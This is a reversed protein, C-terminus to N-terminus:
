EEKKIKQFIEDMEEPTCKDKGNLHLHNYASHRVAAQIKRTIQMYSERTLSAPLEFHIEKVQQKNLVQDGLDDIDALVRKVRSENQYKQMWVKLFDPSIGHKECLTMDNSATLDDVRVRIQDIMEPKFTGQEKQNLIIDYYFLYSGAYDLYLEDLIELLKEATHVNSDFKVNDNDRALYLLAAGAALAGVGIAAYKSLSM